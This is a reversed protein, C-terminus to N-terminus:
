ATKEELDANVNFIDKQGEEMTPYSVYGCALCLIYYGYIDEELTRDGSCRPCSKFLVM